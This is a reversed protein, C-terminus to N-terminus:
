GHRRERLASDIAVRPDRDGCGNLGGIGDPVEVMAGGHKDFQVTAGTSILRRLREADGKLSAYETNSIFQIM